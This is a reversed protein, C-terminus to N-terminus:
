NVTNHLIITYFRFLFDFHHLATGYGCFRLKQSLKTPCLNLNSVATMSYKEAWRMSYWRFQRKGSNKPSWASTKREKRKCHLVGYTNLNFMREFRYRNIEPRLESLCITLYKSLNSNLGHKTSMHFGSAYLLLYSPFYRRVKCPSVKVWM